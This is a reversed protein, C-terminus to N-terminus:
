KSIISYIVNSFHRLTHNSPKSVKNSLAYSLVIVIASICTTNKPSILTDFVGLSSESFYGCM